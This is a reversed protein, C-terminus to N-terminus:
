HLGKFTATFESEESESEKICGETIILSSSKVTIPEVWADVEVNDLPSFMFSTLTLKRGARIQNRTEVLSPSWKEERVQANGCSLLLSLSTDTEVEQPRFFWFSSL